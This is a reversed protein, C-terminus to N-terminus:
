LTRKSLKGQGTESDSLIKSCKPLIWLMARTKNVVIVVVVVVVVIMVQTLNGCKLSKSQLPLLIYISPENTCPETIVLPSIAIEQLGPPM